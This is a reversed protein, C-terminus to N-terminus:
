AAREKCWIEVSTSVFSLAPTSGTSLVGKELGKDFLFSIGELHISFTDTPGFDVRAQNFSGRLVKHTPYLQVLCDTHARPPSFVDAGLGGTALSDNLAHSSYLCFALALPGNETTGQIYLLRSASQEATLRWISQCSLETLSGHALLILKNLILDPAILSIQALYLASLSM